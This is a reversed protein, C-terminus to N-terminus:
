MVYGSQTIEVVYEKGALRLLDGDQLPIKQWPVLRRDNHFTGTDSEADMVMVTGAEQLIQANGHKIKRGRNDKVIKEAEEGFLYPFQYIPIPEEAGMQPILCVKKQLSEEEEYMVDLKGTMGIDQPMTKWAGYGAAALFFVFAGATKGWDTQGSLPKQFIGMWWLVCPLVIGVALIMGPLLCGRMVVKRHPRRKEPTEKKESNIELKPMKKMVSPSSVTKDRFELVYNKLGRRTCGTEKTLKHMGYIFFVLERDKQNMKEMISELLYGISAIVSQRYGNMYIGELNGSTKDVYLYDERIVIGESDLLYEEMCDAMDFLQLFLRRIDDLTFSSMTLYHELSVKGSINYIYEKQGNIRRVELPLFGKIDQYSFIMDSIGEGEAGAVKIYNGTGDQWIEKQIITKM